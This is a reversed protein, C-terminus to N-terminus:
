DGARVQFRSLRWSGLVFAGVILTAIMAVSTDMALPAPTPIHGTLGYALGLTAQRVSLFRTGELLGSLVGEWILTYALGVVLARSTFASLAVFAVSYAIGGLGTAVAFDITTSVPVSSAQGIIYGTVLSSPVVLAVTLGGAVAMKALVIRWRAIPKAMVYVVTGDELEAGLAGTGFVLAILPMVTRIMLTDLVSAPGPHRGSLGILLAVMIPLGALLLMLWSRRRGLLGRMTMAVLPARNIM